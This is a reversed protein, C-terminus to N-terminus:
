LKSTRKTVATSFVAVAAIAIAAIGAALIAWELATFGGDRHNDHNRAQQLRATTTTRYQHTLTQLTLYTHLLKTSM